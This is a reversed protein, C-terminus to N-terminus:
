RASEVRQFFAIQSRTLYLINSEAVEAQGRGSYFVRSLEDVEGSCMDGDCATNAVEVATTTTVATEATIATVAMAAMGVGSLFLGGAVFAATAVPHKLATSCFADNGAACKGEYVKAQLKALKQANTATELDSSHCHSKGEDGCGETEM